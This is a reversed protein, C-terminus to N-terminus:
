EKENQVIKNKRRRIHVHRNNKWSVEYFIGCTSYSGTKKTLAEEKAHRVAKNM